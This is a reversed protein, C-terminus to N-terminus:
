QGGRSMTLQISKGDESLKEYVSFGKRRAQIKAMEVAYAQKLLGAGKGLKRELGGSQWFDWLLKVEGEREIIGIEYEAGPVSIAHTCKGLDEEKMWEPLQYDRMYRGYWKYTKQGEKWQLGLRECAGKLAELSKIKLDITTVHSM